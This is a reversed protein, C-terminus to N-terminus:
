PPDKEFKAINMFKWGFINPFPEFGTEDIPVDKLFLKITQFIKQISIDIKSFLDNKRFHGFFVLILM